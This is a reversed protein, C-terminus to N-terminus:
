LTTIINNVMLFLARPPRMTKWKDGNHDARRDGGLRTDSLGVYSPNPSDTTGRQMAFGTDTINQQGSANLLPKRLDIGVCIDPGVRRKAEVAVRASGTGLDFVNERVEKSIGSPIGVIRPAGARHGHDSYVMSQARIM